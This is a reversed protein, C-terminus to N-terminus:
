WTRRLPHAETNLVWEQPDLVDAPAFLLWAYKLTEALFFSEMADDLEGTRVDRLHAFGAEVRCARLVDTLLAAGMRQYRAEDDYLRLYWASEFIEPRLPWGPSLIEGTTYDFSEPEVLAMNWMAFCSAQLDAAEGVRGSLALVGPFFAHLAGFRTALREGSDMDVVAYWLGEATRHAVHTTVSSVADEWMARYRADDFLLSAKLLYEYWSDIRGGIHSRRDEWEGSEVDITTGPLGIPSLREHLAAVARDVARRYRDDGTLGSLTGFELTLTGIEAPNSVRGRVAGTRLNVFRYPMGTPSDFAPLLRDGLDRALALFAPDGDIQHASLLGGLLRITVEFVQVDIDHDFSLGDLVLGKAEAAEDALGMLLMTDFADVPTMYLSTGYWDHPTRSLPRLADHGRAHRLYGGWAHRFADVVVGALSDQQAATFPVSGHRAPSPTCGGAASLSLIATAVTM